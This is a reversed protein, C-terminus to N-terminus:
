LKYSPWYNLKTAKVLEGETITKGTLAANM